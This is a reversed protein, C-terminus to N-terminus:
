KVDEKTLALYLVSVSNFAFGMLGVFGWDTSSMDHVGTGLVVGFCIVYAIGSAICWFYTM